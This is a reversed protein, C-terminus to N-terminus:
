DKNWIDEVPLGGDRRHINLRVTSTSCHFEKAVEAVNKYVRGKIKINALSPSRRRLPGLTNLSQGRELHKRVQDTSVGALTAVEEIDTYAKGKYYFTEVEIRTKRKGRKM